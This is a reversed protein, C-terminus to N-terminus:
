PRTRWGESKELEHFAKSAERATKVNFARKANYERVFNEWAKTFRNAKVVFQREVKQAAQRREFEEEVRNGSERYMFERMFYDLSQGPYGRTFNEQPAAPTLTCFILASFQVFRKM